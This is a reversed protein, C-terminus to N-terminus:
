TCRGDRVIYDVDRQLLAHAHLAVNLRTLTDLQEAAYLDIGGLAREAARAGAQDPPRQPRRRRGRLAAPPAAGRSGRWGPDADGAEAAGALVLPVRAEDVLVSDAEDILAVDPDPVVLAAVDTVFRDRLVDFGIESVPAYTVQAAYARRREAPTSAQGIWGVTVGLLDYVPRMWEADRRALYDNVSMVHVSRGRLAYGAAALAGSLTKGEGTAMEAVQGSLMALTGLLQVDYPREGLARRAAERGVACFGADDPQRRALGALEADPLGRLTDERAAIAPLLRQYTSLDATGPKQLFRRVRRGLVSM